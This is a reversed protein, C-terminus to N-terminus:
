QGFFLELEKIVEETTGVVKKCKPLSDLFFKGYHKSVIRKDLVLVAGRDTKTRILRGFGQKFKLVAVPITYELFSNIGQKEMHEVRAEIIPETPVRFPLRTIIVMRLADGPVDVGEWFSDTAFLVSNDEVRFRDLLRARPLSGQKLSIIGIEGLEGEIKSYVADLLSYSTFLILANGHSAKVAELIIPSLRESYGREVPEPIDKIIALLAQEKYNFPSSLIIESIRSREGQDQEPYAKRIERRDELGLGSKLFSFSKKVALTASTMVVTRCKSYLKEKLQPSIDLPSLGIGSIIEGRRIRGEIWRVYGDEESNLFSRIVDSYFDLKNAIGKFEVLVRAVDTEVEYDVLVDTFAKIEDHLEKLKIRLISFKKDIGEWEESQRIEDTIRLNIEESNGEKIMPIAFYYLADFADRVHEEVKDIQPSLIEEVRRLVTNLIGKRFYKTLKTALSATYFILGKMEGGKGRRKLRRLMRIIGYKTTRMGFHSTAADVLHHAEDFIVRKYAPLIGAESEESAGKISLDSFLLHHNVVLIQSSALERRAKYFFCKSYHPCRVRLCSESEAAVKDWVDEPPSFNLDSISGDETVKSWEVISRLVEIEEDEALDLIGDTVTEARLLCLYNGMGKVLSYKFKQTLTSHVLPIDKGILQEQLNITNTSVVIREGNLLSWRIAPILYALTKGTGTGAEILSILEENFAFAVAEIMDLQEPRQEYQSGMTKAVEGDPILLSKLEEIDLKKQEDGVFPEVVVYAKSADNTIIYFGVACNGFISAMHIDEDSPTLNGSPHNHIVVEGSKASEVIAPVSYDNGRAAIRVSYVIGNEDLSGVFFVENGSSGRIIEDIEERAKESFVKKEM